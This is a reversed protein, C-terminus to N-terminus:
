KKEGGSKNQQGEEVEVEVETKWRVANETVAHREKNGKKETRKERREKVGGERERERGRERERKSERKRGRIKNNNSEMDFLYLGPFNPLLTFGTKVDDM